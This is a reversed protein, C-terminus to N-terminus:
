QESCTRSWRLLVASDAEEYWREEHAEASSSRYVVATESSLGQCSIWLEVLKVLMQIVYGEETGDNNYFKCIERYESSYYGVTIVWFFLPLLLRVTNDAVLAISNLPSSSKMCPRLNILNWIISFLFDSILSLERLQLKIFLYINFAKLYYFWICILYMETWTGEMKTRFCFTM